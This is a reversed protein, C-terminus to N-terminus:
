RLASDGMLLILEAETPVSGRLHTTYLFRPPVSKWPVQRALRHARLASKTAATMADHINNNTNLELQISSFHSSSLSSLIFPVRPSSSSITMQVLIFTHSVDFRSDEKYAM